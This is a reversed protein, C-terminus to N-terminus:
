YCTDCAEGAEKEEVSSHFIPHDLDAPHFMCLIRADYVAFDDFCPIRTEAPDRGLFRVLRSAFQLPVCFWHCPVFWGM